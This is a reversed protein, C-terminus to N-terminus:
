DCQCQREHCAGTGHRVGSCHADPITRRAARSAAPPTNASGCTTAGTRSRDAHLAAIPNGVRRTRRRARADGHHAASRDTDRAEGGTAGSPPAARPRSRTLAVVHEVNDSYAGLSALISARPPCGPLTRSLYNALDTSTFFEKGGYSFKPSAKRTVQIVAEVRDGCHMLAAEVTGAAPQSPLRAALYVALQHRSRFAIGNYSGARKM